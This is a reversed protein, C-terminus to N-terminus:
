NSLAVTKKRKMAVKKFILVALFLIGSAVAM